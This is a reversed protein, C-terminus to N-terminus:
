LIEDGIQVPHETTFLEPYPMNITSTAFDMNVFQVEDFFPRGPRATRSLELGQISPSDMEPFPLCFRQTTDVTGTTKDLEVKAPPLGSSMNSLLMEFSVNSFVVNVFFAM